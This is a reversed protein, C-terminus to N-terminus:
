GPLIQEVAEFLTQMRKNFIRIRYEYKCIFNSDESSNIEIFFSFKCPVRVTLASIQPRDKYAM